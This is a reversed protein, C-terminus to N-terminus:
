YSAHPAGALCSVQLGLRHLTGRPRTDGDFSALWGTRVEQRNSILTVALLASLLSAALHMDGSHNLFNAGMVGAEELV